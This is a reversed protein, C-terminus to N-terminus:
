TAILCYVKLELGTSGIIDDILITVGDITIPRDSGSRRVGVFAGSSDYIVVSQLDRALM